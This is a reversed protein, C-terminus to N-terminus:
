FSAIGLNKCIEQVTDINVYNRSYAASDFLGEIQLSGIQCEKVLPEKLETFALFLVTIDSVRSQQM